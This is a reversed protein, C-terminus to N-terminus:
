NKVPEVELLKPYGSKLYRGSIVEFLSPGNEGNIEDTKVDYEGASDKGVANAAFEEGAPADKFDLALGSTDDVGAGGGEMEVPLQSAKKDTDKKGLDSLGAAKSDIPTAGISSLFGAPTVGKSDLGKKAATKLRDLFKAQEKDFDVKPKGAASLQANLKEQQAKLLKAVASQRNALSEANALTSGSIGNTGSVGDGLRASQSAIDKFSDPLNGFGPMGTLSDALSKCNSSDNSQMCQSKVKDDVSFSQISGKASGIGKVQIGQDALNSSNIGKQLANMDALIKDIKKINEDLKKIVNDSSRSAMFSLAALTGWAIVRNSPVFLLADLEVALGMYTLGFAGIAAGGALGLLPLWGAEASPVIYGFMKELMSEPTPSQFESYSIKQPMSGYLIQNLMLNQSFLGEKSAPDYAYIQNISELTLAKQCATGVPTKAAQPSPSVPAAGICLAGALTKAKTQPTEAAQKEKMSPGPSQRIGDITTMLTQLQTLEGACKKCAAGQAEAKIALEGIKIKTAGTPDPLLSLEDIEMRTAVEEPCSTNPSLGTTIATQCAKVAAAETYAMYGAMAAAAAFAAAAGMQLMKKTETTKKAKEYSEKLKNLHEIQAQDVSGDSKKTIQVTQEDMEAKFGMNSMVEGAIFAAGGAAAIMMDTTPPKYKMLLRAAIVGTALMVISALMDSNEIKDLKESTTKSKVGKSDTTIPTSTQALATTQYSLLSGSIVAIIFTRYLHRLM